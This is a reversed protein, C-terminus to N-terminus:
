KAPVPTPAAARAAGLLPATFYPHEVPWPRDPVQQKVFQQMTSKLLAAAESNRARMVEFIAQAQYEQADKFKGHAAMALALAASNAADPRAKYLAQGYDLAVDRTKADAAPCTSALRVFVQILDGDDKRRALAENVPSLADACKGQMVLAAVLHAHATANDPQLAVLGRYQEAAQAYRARRMEADGLLLWSDAQKRDLKQAQRYEDYAKAEDGAYEAVIGSAVHAAAGDSKLKLARDASARAIAPNGLAAEVRASFVLADVDDPNKKLLAALTDRAAQINGERAFAQADTVTGGASPQSMLMGAIIPDDLAVAGNGAKARAEDAAKTNGQAAYAAAIRAYLATAQPDRQLAQNYSVIADASRKQKMALDGLMAHTAAQEPHENRAQELVRRAGDLDGLDVLTDALRYRIPTYVKDRELAAQFNARADDNRKLKRAIVGRLYYWRGDNPDVQSADYFAVAAADDFGNRAYLAGLDAYAQALPPGVLNAKAKDIVAREEALKKAAEPTLKSTDPTPVPQLSGDAHAAVAALALLFSAFFRQSARM